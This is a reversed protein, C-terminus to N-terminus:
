PRCSGHATLGIAIEQPGAAVNRIRGKPSLQRYASSNPLLEDFIEWQDVFPM